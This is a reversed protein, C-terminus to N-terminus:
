SRYDISEFNKIQHEVMKILESISNMVIYEDKNILMMNLELMLEDFEDVFFHNEGMLHYASHNIEIIQFVEIIKSPDEM